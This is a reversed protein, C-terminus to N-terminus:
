VYLVPEKICVHVKRKYSMAFGTEVTDLPLCGATGFIHKVVSLCARTTQISGKRVRQYCKFESLFHLEEVGMSAVNLMGLFLVM